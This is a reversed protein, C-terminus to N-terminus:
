PKLARPSKMSGKSLCRPWDDSLERSRIEASRHALGRRLKSIPLQASAGSPHGLHIAICVLVAWGAVLGLGSIEGVRARRAQERFLVPSQADKFICGTNGAAM